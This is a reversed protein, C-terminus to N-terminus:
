QNELEEKVAALAGWRPDIPAKCDCEETNLDAGCLPCLGRCDDQCLLRTPLSLELQEIVLQDLDIQDNEYVSLGLDGEQLEIEGTRSSLAEVPTYILDFPLALPLSIDALCRDCSRRLRAVIEGRLRIEVGVRGAHGVVQVVVGSEGTQTAEGNQGNHDSHGSESALHDLEFDRGTLDLEGALYRHEFKLGDTPLRVLSIIM